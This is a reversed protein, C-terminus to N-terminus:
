VMYPATEEQLTLDNKPSQGLIYAIFIEVLEPDFQTGACARLEIIGEQLTKTKQYPRETTMADFSDLVTLMRCLKPIEKGKLGHPYGKGDFREHHLEIYPILDRFRPDTLAIKKGWTVHQKITEWEEPTLKGEKNLVGWPIELKGIDHILAGLVFERKEEKDLSLINSMDLAYKYVRKSHKFTDIDKYMFLNLQQEIYNVEHSLDLEDEMILDCGYTHVTNKGQKKAYYLAKDAHDVLQSKDYLDISYQAIGASFSLCKHPFVEVGDFPTDNLKKRMKDVFHRAKEYDYGPMLLTFEEGGYRSAVISTDKTEEKLMSGLFSILLDGKLHGFSDNYKKFDDIDIMALSLPRDNVKAEIIHYDLSSEFFSHNYLATRQDINSRNLIQHYMSFLLRFAHSLMIGLSLFLILGLTGNNVILVCLVLSLILMCLYVLVTDKVFGKLTNILDKRYLLYYYLFLGLTNVIFYVALSVIYSTLNLSDVTGLSGGLLLFVKYCLSIMISYLAFNTCQKWWPIGRKYIAYLLSCILLVSLTFQSGYIFVCALYISSDFSMLNGEPPLRFMLSNLILTAGVMVYLQVWQESSYHFFAWGNINQFTLFGGLCLIVIYWMSVDLKKIKSYLNTM